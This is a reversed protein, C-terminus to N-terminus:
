FEGSRVSEGTAARLPQPSPARADGLAAVLDAGLDHGLIAALEARTARTVDDVRNAAALVIRARAGSVGRSALFAVLAREDAVLALARESLTVGVAARLDDATAARLDELDGADALAGADAASVQRARCWAVVKARERDARARAAAGADIVVAPRALAALPRPSAPAAEAM